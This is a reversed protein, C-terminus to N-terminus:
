LPICDGCHNTEPDVEETAGCNACRLRLGPQDRELEVQAQLQDAATIEPVPKRVVVNLLPLQEAAEQETILTLRYLSTGSVICSGGPRGTQVLTGAPYLRRTSWLATPSYVCYDEHPLERTEWPTDPQLVELMSVNGLYFSKVYGTISQHGLMEVIAWGEIHTQGNHDIRLTSPVPTLTREQM